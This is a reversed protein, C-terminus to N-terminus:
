EIDSMREPRRMLPSPPPPRPAPPSRSHEEWSSHKPTRTGAGSGSAFRGLNRRPSSVWCFRPRRSRIRMSRRDCGTSGSWAFRSSARSAATSRPWTAAFSISGNRWHLGPTQPPAPLDNQLATSDRRELRAIFRRLEPRGSSSVRIACIVDMANFERYPSSRTPRCPRVACAIPAKSSPLFRLPRDTGPRRRRHRWQPGRVQCWRAPRGRSGRASPRRRTTWRPRDIPRHRRDHPYPHARFPPDQFRILRDLDPEGAYAYMYGSVGRPEDYPDPDTPLRCQAWGAFTISLM